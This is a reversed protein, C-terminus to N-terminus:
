YLPRHGLIEEAEYIPFGEEDVHIPPPLTTRTHESQRYPKVLPVHFVDHIRYTHPLQLRVAAEGM